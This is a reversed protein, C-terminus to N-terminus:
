HILCQLKVSDLTLDSRPNRRDQMFNAKKQSGNKGGRRRMFSLEVPLHAKETVESLM